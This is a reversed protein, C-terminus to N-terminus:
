LGEMRLQKAEPPASVVKTQPASERIADTELIYVSGCDPCYWEEQGGSRSRYKVRVKHPYPTQQQCFIM